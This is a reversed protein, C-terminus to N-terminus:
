ISYLSVEDANPTCWQAKRLCIAQQAVCESDKLVHLQESPINDLAVPNFM